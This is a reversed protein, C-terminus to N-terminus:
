STSGARMAAMMELSDLAPFWSRLPQPSWPLAQPSICTCDSSVWRHEHLFVKRSEAPQYFTDYVLQLRPCDPAGSALLRFGPQNWWHSSLSIKRSSRWGADSLHRQSVSPCLRVGGWQQNGEWTYSDGCSSDGGVVFIVLFDTGVFAHIGLCGSPVVGIIDNGSSLPVLSVHAKLGPLRGFDCLFCNTALCLCIFLM